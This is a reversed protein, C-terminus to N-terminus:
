ENLDNKVSDPFKESFIIRYVNTRSLVLCIIYTLAIVGAAIFIKLISIGAILTTAVIAVVGIFM